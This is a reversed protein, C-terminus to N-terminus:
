FRASPLGQFYYYWWYTNGYMRRCQNSRETASSLCARLQLFDDLNAEVANNKYLVEPSTHQRGYLVLAEKYYLPLSDDVAYYRPLTKVFGDLNKDLLYACLLYDRAAPTASPQEAMLELFRTNSRVSAGPRGGLHRYLLSLWGHVYITDSPHPLLGESGDYMPYEFLREALLGKRSLAFSRMATLSRDTHLSKEGIELAESDQGEVIYREAKLRYHYVEDTNGISGVMCCLISFCLFNVWLISFVTQKEHKRDPYRLAGCTLLVYAAVWVAVGTWDVSLRVDWGEKPVISTLLGLVLASPFFYLAHFRLPYLITRRCAGQLLLLVVTIVVAGWLPSYVTKGKSLLHQATALLDPQMWYLYSMSFIAFLSGCLWTVMRATRKNYVPRYM